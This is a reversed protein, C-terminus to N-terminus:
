RQTIFDPEQQMSEGEGMVRASRKATVQARFPAKLVTQSGKGGGGEGDVKSEAAPPASVQSLLMQFWAQSPM